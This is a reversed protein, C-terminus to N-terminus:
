PTRVHETSQPSDFSCLAHGSKNTHTVPKNQTGHATNHADAHCTRESVADHSALLHQNSHRMHLGTHPLHCDHQTHPGAVAPHTASPLIQTHPGVEALHTAPPSTYKHSPQLRTHPLCCPQLLATDKGHAHLDCCGSQKRQLSCHCTKARPARLNTHQQSVHGSIRPWCFVSM